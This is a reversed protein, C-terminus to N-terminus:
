LLKCVGRWHTLFFLLKNIPQRERGKIKYPREEGRRNHFLLKTETERLFTGKQPAKIKIKFKLMLMQLNVIKRFNPITVEKITSKPITFNHIMFNPQFSRQRGIKKLAM